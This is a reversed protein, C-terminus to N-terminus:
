YPLYPSKYPEDSWTVSDPRLRKFFVSRRAPSYVEAHFEARRLTKKCVGSSTKYDRFLFVGGNPNLYPLYPPGSPLFFPM